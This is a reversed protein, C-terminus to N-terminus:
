LFHKVICDSSVNWYENEKAFCISILAIIENFSIYDVSSAFKFSLVGFCSEVFGVFDNLTSHHNEDRISALVEDLVYSGVDVVLYSQLIFSRVLWSQNEQLRVM